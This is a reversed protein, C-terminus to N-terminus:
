PQKWRYVAMNEGSYTKLFRSEPSFVVVKGRILDPYWSPFSVLFDVSNKDLFQALQAQDRMFPIVEPSILGALDILRHSGFYGLAGIDHASILKDSPINASVWYATDVMESEIFAVDKAYTWYGSVFYFACIIGASLVWAVQFPNTKARKTRIAFWESGGLCGMLLVIPMAPMAYRGHQYIVPLRIAYLGLYTVIWVFSALMGGDRARIVRVLWFVGAPLLIIGPGILAQIAQEFFRSYLPVSQLISYETQKAYFTNPLLTGTSALNFLLYPVAFIAFGLGAKFINNIRNGAPSISLSISLFLPLLLTIGDPRVWISLGTILGLPLVRGPSGTLLAFFLMMFFIHLSTEMGSVAAWVFHWECAFLIGVWPILSRYGPIVRRVTWEALCATGWLSLAGLGFTWLYINLKLFHGLALLMSWLPSTSGGASSQGPFFEWLGTQALSRAYTQHIWADDLPFGIRFYSFSALIYTCVAALSIGALIDPIRKEIIAVNTL